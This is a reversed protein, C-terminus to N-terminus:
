SSHLNLSTTNGDTGVMERSVMSELPKQCYRQTEM